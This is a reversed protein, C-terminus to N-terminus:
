TGFLGLAYASHLLLPTQTANRLSMYAIQTWLFFLILKIGSFCMKELCYCTKYITELHITSLLLSLPHFVCIPFM